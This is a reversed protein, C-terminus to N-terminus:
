RIVEIIWREYNEYQRDLCYNGSRSHFVTVGENYRAKLDDLWESKLVKTGEYDLQPICKIYNYWIRSDVNPTDYTHHSYGTIDLLHIIREKELEKPEYKMIHLRNDSYWKMLDVDDTGSTSTSQSALQSLKSKMANDQSEKTKNVNAWAGASSAMGTVGSAIMGAGMVKTGVAVDVIGALISAVSGITQIAAGRQQSELQLANAKKDYNYGNKIYNIYEDNYLTEESNRTVLLLRDFDEKEKYSGVNTSSINLRFGLKSNITSTPKYDIPITTNMLVSATSTDIDELRLETSFSDFVAKFSRLESHYMKSELGNCFSKNLGKHLTTTIYQPTLNVTMEPVSVKIKGTTGLPILSPNVRVIGSIDIFGDFAITTGPFEYSGDNNRTYDIPCYPLRIVKTIKSNSVNLASYGPVVVAVGNPHCWIGVSPQANTLIAYTGQNTIDTDSARLFTSYQFVYSTGNNWGESDPPSSVYNSAYQPSPYIHITDPYPNTGPITVSTNEAKWIKYKISTGVRKFAVAQTGNKDYNEIELTGNIKLYGQPNDFPIWYYISNEELEDYTLTHTLSSVSHLRIPSSACLYPKVSTDSGFKRYILFWDLNDINEQLSADYTKEKDPVIGESERDINRWLTGGVSPNWGTKQKFRDIHQREIETTALFNRPSCYENANALTNVTDMHLALRVCQPSVWETDMIHYYFVKTEDSNHISCYNYDINNVNDQGILLKHTIDLDNKVYQQNYYVSYPSGSLFTAFDDILCNTDKPFNIRYLYITSTAM